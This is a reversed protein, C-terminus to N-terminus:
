SESKGFRANLQQRVRALVQANRECALERVLLLVETVLREHASIDHAHTKALLSELRDLRSGLAEIALPARGQELEARVLSALTLGRQDATRTLTAYMEPAVAVKLYKRKM